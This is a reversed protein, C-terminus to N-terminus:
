SFQEGERLTGFISRWERSYREGLIYSHGNLLPPVEIVPFIM